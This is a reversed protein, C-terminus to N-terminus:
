IKQYLRKKLYVMNEMFTRKYVERCKVYSYRMEDSVRLDIDPREKSWRGTLPIPAYIEEADSLFSAWWYFTSASMIIKKFLMILRFNDLTSSPLLIANYKKKFKLVFPDKSVNTVVFVRNYGTMALAEEYYSLPLQDSAIGDAADKRRICVIIDDPRIEQKAKIDTLFWNNRILDKYMRYYEYRQFFGNLVIKRKSKDFLIHKLDVTHGTLIQVPHGSYDNGDVAMNTNFFGPIPSAKLKFGLNEALIRGFCYQFLNNGLRGQYVVEVM